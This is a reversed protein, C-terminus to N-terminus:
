TAHTAVAYRATVRNSLKKGLPASESSCGKRPQWVRLLDKRPQWARFFTVQGHQLNATPANKVLGFMVDDSGPKGKYKYESLLQRAYATYVIITIIKNYNITIKRLHKCVIFLELHVSM